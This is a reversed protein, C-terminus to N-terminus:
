SIIVFCAYTGLRETARVTRIASPDECGAMNRRQRVALSCAADSIMAQGSLILSMWIQIPSGRELELRQRDDIRSHGHKPPKQSSGVGGVKLVKDPRLLGAVARSIDDPEPPSHRQRPTRRIPWQLRHHYCLLECRAQRSKRSLWLPLPLV